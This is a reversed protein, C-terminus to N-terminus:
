QKKTANRILMEIEISYEFTAVRLKWLKLIQQAHLISDKESVVLKDKFTSIYKKWCNNKTDNLLYYFGADWFKRGSSELILEKNEGVSPKLIVIANGKPLPFIGKICTIGSPLTYTGYIGSYIIM